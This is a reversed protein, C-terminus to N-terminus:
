DLIHTIQSTSLAGVLDLFIELRRAARKWGEPPPNPNDPLMPVFKVDPTWLEEMFPNSFLTVNTGFSTRQKMAKRVGDAIRYFNDDTLSFGIFLMHSTILMTQVIGLIIM